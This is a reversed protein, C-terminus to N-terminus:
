INTLLIWFHISNGFKRISNVAPNGHLSIFVLIIVLPSFQFMMRHRHCGRRFHQHSLLHPHTTPTIHLYVFGYLPAHNSYSRAWEPNFIKHFSVHKQFCGNSNSRWTAVAVSMCEVRFYLMGSDLVRSWGAGSNLNLRGHLKLSLM